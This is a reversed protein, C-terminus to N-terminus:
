PKAAIEGIRVFDLKGTGLIPLSDVTVVRKPVAIEPIGHSQAYALLADSAADPHDSVLVITEGKRPDPLSVAAHSAEPWVAAAYAEVAALSVMEGGIKAFRKARGRIAVYGDADITVIDGTDYWPDPSIQLVGPRDVRFYGRMVNPGRVHLRGGVDLGPVPEIRAEIGPLLPGVTSERAAGPRNVAIVPACETAGYGEYLEVGFRQRWLARTPEKVREAGLITLRLSRFDEPEAARGWGAAFTDTALLITTGSERVLGPIQKYHLPSPYLFSKFGGMLPLLLGATLGFCHFVPLANFMVDTSSFRHIALIQAVNALLNAHTLAVGKPVGETGSTFLIVAVDDPRPRFLAHGLAPLKAFAAGVLKDATTIARRLDELMVVTARRKLAEVVEELKLTKVFAASTVITRIGAADCAAELNKLGASFNLMAPVRGYATLAVFTVAAGNVNPLLVGVSEGKRTVASLRRGLVAAALILRDRTLPQRDQDEVAIAGGGARRRADLLADFLTRNWFAPDLGAELPPRGAAIAEAERSGDM